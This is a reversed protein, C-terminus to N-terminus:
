CPELEISIIDIHRSPDTLSISLSPDLGQEREKKEKRTIMIDDNDMGVM